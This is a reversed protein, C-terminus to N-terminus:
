SSPACASMVLENIGEALAIKPRINLVKSMRSNEGLLHTVGDSETYRIRPARNASEGLLEILETLSVHEDGAINIAGSASIDLAQLMAKAADSVHIPNIRIGPEGNVVIEDGRIVRGALLPVLMDRQESGYVFFLRLLTAAMLEKYGDVLLEAAYKSRLYFNSPSIPDSEMLPQTSPQYIGGSSAFVFKTAGAKHAYRLLEATSAVNVNFIDEAFEPFQKYHRSQALHLVADIQEPLLQTSLPAALDQQIWDVNEYETADTRSLAVVEHKKALLPIVHKGIFGTGGTVLVRMLDPRGATDFDDM